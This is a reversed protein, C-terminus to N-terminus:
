LYPVVDGDPEEISTSSMDVTCAHLRMPLEVYWLAHSCIDVLQDEQVPLPVLERLPVMTPALKHPELEEQLVEQVEAALM